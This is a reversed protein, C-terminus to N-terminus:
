SSKFTTFTLNSSEFGQNVNRNVFIKDDLAFCSCIRIQLQRSLYDFAKSLKKWDILKNEKLNRLKKTTIRWCVVCVKGKWNIHNIKALGFTTHTSRSSCTRSGSHTICSREYKRQSILVRSFRSIANAHVEISGHFFCCRRWASQWSTSLCLSWVETALRPAFAHLFTGVWSERTVMSVNSIRVSFWILRRMIWCMEICWPQTYNCGVRLRFTPTARRWWASWSFGFSAIM